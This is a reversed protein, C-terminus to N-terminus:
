NVSTAPSTSRSIRAAAIQHDLAASSPLNQGASVVIPTVFHYDLNRFNQLQLDLVTVSGRKLDLPGTATESSNTFVLDTVYLTKGAAVTIQGGAAIVGDTAQGGGTLPPASAVTAGGPVARGQHPAKIPTRTPLRLPIQTPIRIQSPPRCFGAAVLTDNTQQEATAEIAPKLLFLWLLVLLVLLGLLLLLARMTWSPLIVEQVMTGDITVPTPGAGEFAGPIATDPAPWALVLPDAQRRGQRLKSDRTAVCARHISISTSCGIRILRASRRMSRPNGRNDIALDHSAGRRGRSTRPALEAFVDSFPAIDLGEEVVSGAPDEKSIVHVGFPLQGAPVQASRPPSFTISVQEEAGPFLSLSPPAITTWAQADGLIQFTLQDVVSGTNRARLQVSAQSGPTVAVLRSELHAAAGMRSAPYGRLAQRSLTLDLRWRPREPM